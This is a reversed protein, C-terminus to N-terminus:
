KKYKLYTKLFYPNNFNGELRKINQHLSNGIDKIEQLAEPYKRMDKVFIDLINKFQFNVKDHVKLHRNILLFSNIMGTIKGDVIETVDVWFSEKKLQVKVSDGVKLEQYHEEDFIHFTDPNNKNSERADLFFFIGMEADLDYIEDIKKKKKRKTNM